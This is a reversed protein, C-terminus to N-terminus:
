WEGDFRLQKREQNPYHRYPRWSTYRKSIWATKRKVENMKHGINNPHRVPNINRASPKIKILWMKAHIENNRQRTRTREGAENKSEDPRPEISTKNNNWYKNNISSEFKGLKPMDQRNVSKTTMTIKPPARLKWNNTVTEPHKPESHLPEQFTRCGRM